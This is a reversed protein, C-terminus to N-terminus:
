PKKRSELLEKLLDPSGNFTYRGFSPDDMDILVLVNEEDFKDKMGNIADIFYKKAAEREKETYAKGTPKFNFSIM